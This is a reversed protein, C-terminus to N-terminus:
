NSTITTITITILLLLVIPWDYKIMIKIAPPTEIKQVAQSISAARREAVSCEM